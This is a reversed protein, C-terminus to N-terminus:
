VQPKVCLLGIKKKRALAMGRAHNGMDALQILNFYCNRALKIKKIVIGDDDDRKRRGVSGFNGGGIVKM